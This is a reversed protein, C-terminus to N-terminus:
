RRKAAFKLDEITVKISAIDRQLGAIRNGFKKRDAVTIMALEQQRRALMAELRKLDSQEQQSLNVAIAPAFFFALESLLHHAAM